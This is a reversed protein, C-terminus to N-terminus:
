ARAGGAVPTAKEQRSRRWGGSRRWIWWRGAPVVPQLVVDAYLALSPACRERCRRCGCSRCISRAAPPSAPASRTSSTPSASRTARPRATTSCISRSRRPAPRSPPIPPTAPTSRSRSTSSRREFPARAADGELGNGLTARQVAPFTVDPPDGLPPVVTAISSTPGPQSRPIRRCSAAHLAAGRALQPGHRARRGATATRSASWGISTATPGATSTMSERWCTPAAASAASGSPAARSTPSSAAARASCSPRPRARSWCSARRRADMEREVRAPDVGDKVTATVVLLSPSSAPESTPADGDTALEQDYVLAAISARAARDASCAPSCSAPAPRGADRWAPAHYVRYIRAQPVRDQM